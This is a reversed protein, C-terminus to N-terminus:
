DLVESAPMALVASMLPVSSSPKLVLIRVPKPTAAEDLCEVSWTFHNLVGPLLVPVIMSAVRMRYLEHDYTAVIPVNMLSRSGGNQVDLHIQFFPGLGKVQSVM